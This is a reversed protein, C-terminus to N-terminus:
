HSHDEHEGEDDHHGANAKLEQDASPPRSAAEDHTHEHATKEPLECDEVNDKQDKDQMHAAHHSEDHASEDKQVHNHEAGSHSHSDVKPLSKVGLGFRYVVEAGHWATSALLSGAVLMAFLFLTNTTQGARVQRWSLIALIFFLSATILAWNRHETMAEHSPADHAVTNYAIVGAVVTLVTIGAGLWLNWQAVLQLQERLKGAAMFRVVVFLLVAISLLGVTFHVFIPHWNPIIEIM